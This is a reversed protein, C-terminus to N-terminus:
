AAMERADALHRIHALIESELWAITAPSPRVRRPFEGKAEMRLLTVRHHRIGLARLQNLNLLRDSSGRFEGDTM